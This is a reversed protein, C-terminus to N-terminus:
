MVFLMKKVKVFDGAQFRYIYIGSSVGSRENNKGDWIINHYGAKKEEDVLMRVEQGLTNYIKLVVRVAKPLQYKIVTQANFPNPYNQSLGYEKPLSAGATFKASPINVAINGENITIESINLPSSPEGM